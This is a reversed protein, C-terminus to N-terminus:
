VRNNYLTNLYNELNEGHLMLMIAEKENFLAIKTRNVVYYPQTLCRELQVLVLNTLSKKIEFEYSKVSLSETLIRYGNQTLRLSHQSPTFWWNLFDDKHNNQSSFETLIKTIEKRTKRQIDLISM